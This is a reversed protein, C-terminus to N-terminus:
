KSQEEFEPPTILKGVIPYDEYFMQEGCLLCDKSRQCESNPDQEPLEPQNFDVTHGCGGFQAECVWWHKLKGM